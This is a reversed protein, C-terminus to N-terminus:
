CICFIPPPRVKHATSQVIMNENESFLTKHNKSLLASSIEIEFNATIVVKKASFSPASSVASNANGDSFSFSNQNKLFKYVLSQQKSTEKRGSVTKKTNISDYTKRKALLPSTKKTKYNSIKTVVSSQNKLGSTLTGEIIYIGAKENRSNQCVKLINGSDFVRIDKSIYIQSLFLHPIFLLAIVISLFHSTGNKRFYDDYEYKSKM